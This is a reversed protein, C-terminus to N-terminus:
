LEKGTKEKFFGKATKIKRELDDQQAKINVLRDTQSGIDVGTKQMSILAKVLARNLKALEDFVKELARFDAIFVEENISRGPHNIAETIKNGCMSREKEKEPSFFIAHKMLYQLFRGTEVRELREQRQYPKKAPM